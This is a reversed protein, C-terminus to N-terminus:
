KFLSLRIDCPLIKQYARHWMDKDFMFFHRAPICFEEGEENRVETGHGFITYTMGIAGEPHNHFESPFSGNIRIIGDSYDRGQAAAFFCEIFKEHVARLCPPLAQELFPYIQWFPTHYPDHPGAHIDAPKTMTAKVFAMMIEDDEKTFPDYPCLLGGVFGRHLAFEDPHDLMIIRDDKKYRRFKETLQMM